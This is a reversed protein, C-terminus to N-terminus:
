FMALKPQKGKGVGIQSNVRSSGQSEFLSGGCQIRLNGSPLVEVVVGVQAPTFEPYVCVGNSLDITFHSSHYYISWTIYIKALMYISCSM